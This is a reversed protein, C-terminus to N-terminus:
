PKRFSWSFVDQGGTFAPSPLADLDGKSAEYGALVAQKAAQLDFPNRALFLFVRERGKGTFEISDPLYTTEQTPVVSLAPGEEPYLPTVEGMEDISVAALFRPEATKYGFRIRDGPDLVEHSGPPASRQAPASTSSIRATAEVSSGKVANRSHAPVRVFFIAVAAAALAGTLGLTWVRRPRPRPVRWAREVGGAFREFPVDREFSRQEELLGRLKGRCVGCGAIHQEVVASREVSFEGARFRRLALEGLHNSDRPLSPNAEILTM